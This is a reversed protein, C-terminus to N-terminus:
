PRNEPHKLTKYNTSVADYFKRVQKIRFLTWEKDPVYTRFVGYTEFVSCCDEITTNRAFWERISLGGVFRIHSQVANALVNAEMIKAMALEVSGGIPDSVTEKLFRQRQLIMPYEIVRDSDAVCLPMLEPLCAQCKYSGAFCMIRNAMDAIDSIKVTEMECALQYYYDFAYKTQLTFMALAAFLYEERDASSVNHFGEMTEDYQKAMELFSDVSVKKSSSIRREVISKVLRMDHINTLEWYQFRSIEHTPFRNSATKKLEIDPKRLEVDITSKLRDALLTHKQDIYDVTRKLEKRALEPELGENEIFYSFPHKPANILYAYRACEVLIQFIVDEIVIRGDFLLDLYDHEYNQYIWRGLDNAVDTMKKNM